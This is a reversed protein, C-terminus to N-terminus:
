MCSSVYHRCPAHCNHPKQLKFHVEIVPCHKARKTILLTLSVACISAQFHPAPRSLLVLSQFAHVVCLIHAPQLAKTKSCLYESLARFYRFNLFRNPLTSRSPCMSILTYWSGRTCAPIYYPYFSAVGVRQVVQRCQRSHTMSSKIWPQHGAKGPNFLPFHFLCTFCHHYLAKADHYPLYLLFFSPNSLQSSAGWPRRTGKALILTDHLEM